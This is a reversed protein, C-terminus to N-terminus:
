VSFYVGDELVQLALVMLKGRAFRGALAREPVASKNFM